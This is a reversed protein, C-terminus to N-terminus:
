REDLPVCFSDTFPREYPVDIRDYVRGPISLDALVLPEPRGALGTKPLALTVTLNPEVAVGPTEGTTADVGSPVDLSCVPVDHTELWTLLTEARGRPSGTLGYGLLCDLVLAPEPLTAPDTTVTADTHELIRLQTAPVGDLEVPPRDVAVTTPVGRNALHRAGVLGGGGNGGGGALVVVPMEQIPETAVAGDGVSNAMLELGLGDAMGFAARVLSRGAHEMMRELTLGLEEVAIRDVERMENATLASVPTGTPTEFAGARM